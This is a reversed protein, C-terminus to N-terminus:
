IGFHIRLYEKIKLLDNDGIKGVKNIFRSRDFSEINHTKIISDGFLGNTGNKLIFIDNYHAKDIKSTLPMVTVLNTKTLQNDTQIVVAPRIGQFEHGVSPAFNVFFIDGCKINNDM